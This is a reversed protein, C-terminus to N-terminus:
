ELRHETIPVVNECRIQRGHGVATATRVTEAHTACEEAVRPVVAERALATLVGEVAAGTAVPEGSADVLVRQRAARTVVQQPSLLAVVDQSSPRAPVQDVATPAKVLEITVAPIIAKVRPVPVRVVHAASAAIGRLQISEVHEAAPASLLSSTPRRAGNWDAIQRRCWQREHHAGSIHPVREGASDPTGGVARPGAGARKYYSVAPQHKASLAETLEHGPALALQRHM